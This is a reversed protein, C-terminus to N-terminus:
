APRHRAGDHPRAPDHRARPVLGEAALKAEDLEVQLLAAIFEGMRKHIQDFLRCSAPYLTNDLDFIWCDIEGLAGSRVVPSDQLKDM